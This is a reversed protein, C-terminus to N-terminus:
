AIPCAEGLEHALWDSSDVRLSYHLWISLWSLEFKVFEPDTDEAKAGPASPIFDM